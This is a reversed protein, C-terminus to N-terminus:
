FPPPNAEAYAAQVNARELRDQRNLNREDRQRRQRDQTRTRARTLNNFLLGGAPTTIYTHGTPAKWVVTGDPEQVERWGCFTKLLHHKRCLAKLNEADTRGGDAYSVSHDLDATAAPRSCGPFRCLQDRCRM